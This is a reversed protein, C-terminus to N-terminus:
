EISRERLADVIDTKQITRIPSIMSLIFFVITSGVILSVTGLTIMIPYYFLLERYIDRLIISFVYCTPLGIVTSILGITMIEQAIIKASDKKRYGLMELLAYEGKRELVNILSVTIVTVILLSLNMWFFFYLLSRMEDIMTSMSGQFEESSIVNSVGRSGYLDRKIQQLDDTKLFIGNSRDALGTINQLREKSLFVTDERLDAVVGTVQLRAEKRNFEILIREGTSVDLKEAIDTTILCRDGGYDLSGSRKIFGIMESDPSLGLMKIDEGESEGYGLAYTEYSKMEREHDRILQKVQEDAMPRTFTVQLDWNQREEWQDAQGAMSDMMIVWSGSIGITLSLAILLATLRKPKRVLNRLSFKSIGSLREGLKLSVITEEAEGSRMAERASMRDIRYVSILVALTVLSTGMVISLLFPPVSFKTVINVDMFWQMGASAWMYGVFISLVGGLFGCILGILAGLLLYSSIIKRRSYGMAMLVGIEKQQSLIIKSIVVIILVAGIALFIVTMIPIVKEEEEIAAEFIQYTYEDKRGTISVLNSASIREKVESKVREKDAGEELKILLDNYGLPTINQLHDLSVYAVIGEGPMPVSSGPVPPVAAYEASKVTGIVKFTSSNGSLKADFSTGIDFETDKGALLVKDEQLEDSGKKLTYTNIEPNKVGVFIISNYEPSVVLGNVVIRGEVNKVGNLDKLEQLTSGDADNVSVELDAHNSREFMRERTEIMMDKAYMGGVTLSLTFMFVLGIGIMRGKMDKVDRFPKLFINSVM